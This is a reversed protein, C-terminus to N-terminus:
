HGYMFMLCKRLFLFVPADFFVAVVGRLRAGRTGSM